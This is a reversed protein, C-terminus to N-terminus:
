HWGLLPEIKNAADLVANININGRDLYKVKDALYDPANSNLNARTAVIWSVAEAEFEKIDSEMKSSVVSKLKRRDSWWGLDHVGCHGCFVHAMEHVLTNLREESSKSSNLYILFRGHRDWRHLVHGSRATGLPMEMVRFLGTKRKATTGFLEVNKRFKELGVNGVVRLPNELIPMLELQKHRQETDEIEYVLTIPGNPVLIVIPAAGPRITRGNKAWYHGTGVSVAGPRQVYILKTTFVSYRKMQSVFKLLGHLWARADGKMSRLFLDNIAAQAEAREILAREKVRTLTPPTNTLPDLADNTM